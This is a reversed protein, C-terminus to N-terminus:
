AIVFPSLDVERPTKVCAVPVFEVATPCKDQAVPVFEVATPKVEQPVPLVSSTRLGKGAAPKNDDAIIDNCVDVCEDCIFVTPGAILKRVDNQNKNCFSCRLIDKDNSKNSM